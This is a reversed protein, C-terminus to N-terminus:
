KSEFWYGVHMGITMRAVHGALRMMRSKIIRIINQSSHLNQLEESCVERWGDTVERWPVFIRRQVRNEFM